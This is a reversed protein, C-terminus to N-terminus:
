FQIDICDLLKEVDKYHYHKKVSTLSLWALSVVKTNRKNYKAMRDPNLKLIDNKTYEKNRTLKIYRDKGTKAYAVCCEKLDFGLLIKEMFLNITPHEYNMEIYQYPSDNVIHQIGKDPYDLYVLRRVYREKKTHYIDIDTYDNTRGDVYAAYGGAVIYWRHKPEGRVKWTMSQDLDKIPKLRKLEEETPESHEFEQLVKEGCWLQLRSGVIQSQM